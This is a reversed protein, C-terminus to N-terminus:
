FSTWIGRTINARCVPRPSCRTTIRLTTPWRTPSLKSCIRCPFVKFPSLAVELSDNYPIGGCILRIRSSRTSGRRRRSCRGRHTGTNWFGGHRRRSARQGPVHRLQARGPARRPVHLRRDVRELHGGPRVDAARAAAIASAARAAAAAVRPLARRRRVRGRHGHGCRCRRGNCTVCLASRGDIGHGEGAHARAVLRRLARAAPLGRGRGACALAGAGACSSTSAAGSWDGVKPFASSSTRRSGPENM